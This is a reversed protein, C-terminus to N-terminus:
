TLCADFLMSTCLGQLLLSMYYLQLNETSCGATCDFSKGDFVPDLGGWFTLQLRSEPQELRDLRQTPRGRSDFGSRVAPEPGFKM